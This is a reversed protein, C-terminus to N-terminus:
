FPLKYIFRRLLDLNARPQDAGVSHGSNRVIVQIFNGFSKAYGAVETDNKSVKWIVRKASYFDKYYKWDKM